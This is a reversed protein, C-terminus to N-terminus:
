YLYNLMQGREHDTIRDITKTDVVIKDHTILDPIYYGLETGKYEIQYRPQQLYNIGNEELDVVLGNEYIKEHYGHGIEKQINFAYGILQYVEEAYLMDSEHENTDMTLGERM